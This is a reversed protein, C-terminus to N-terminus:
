QRQQAVLRFGAQLARGGFQRAQGHGERRGIFHHLEVVGLNGGHRDPGQRQVRRRRRRRQRGGHCFLHRFLHRGQRLVHVQGHAFLLVLVILSSEWIRIERRSVCWVRRRSSRRTLRTSDSSSNRASTSWRRSAQPM